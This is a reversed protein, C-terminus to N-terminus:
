WGGIGTPRRLDAYCHEHEGLADGHRYSGPAWSSESSERIRDIRRRGHTRRFDRGATCSHISEVRVIGTSADADGVGARGERPGAPPAIGTRHAAARRLFAVQNIRGTTM